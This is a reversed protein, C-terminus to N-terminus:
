CKSTKNNNERDVSVDTLNIELSCRLTVYLPVRTDASLSHVEM